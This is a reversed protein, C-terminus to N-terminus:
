SCKGNSLVWRLLVFGWNVLLAIAVHVWTRNDRALRSILLRFRASFASFLAAPVAAVAVVLGLPQVWFGEVVDGGLAVAVAKATGCTPCPIGLSEKLLCHPAGVAHNLAVIAFALAFCALVLAPSRSETPERVCPGAQGGFPAGGYAEEYAAAIICYSIPKTFFAGVGFAAFGLASLGSAVLAIVFVSWLRRDRLLGLPMTLVERFSAGQDVVLTLMWFSVATDLFFEALRSVVVLPMWLAGGGCGANIAYHLLLTMAVIALSPVFCRAFGNFVDGVVPRPTKGRLIALSIALVGCSMAGGCVGSSLTNVIMALLTAPFIVRFGEKYLRFGRVFSRDITPARVIPKKM